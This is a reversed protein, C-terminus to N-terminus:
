PERLMQLPNPLSPTHPCLLVILVSGAIVSLIKLGSENIDGVRWNLTAEEQQECIIVRLCCQKPPPPVPSELLKYSM